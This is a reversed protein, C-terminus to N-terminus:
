EFLKEIDVKLAQSLGLMLTSNAIRKQLNVLDFPQSRVPVPLRPTRLIQRCIEAIRVASTGGNQMPLLERITKEPIDAHVEKGLAAATFIASSVQAVLVDCNAIIEHLNGDRFVMAQPFVRRIEAEAREQNENPHLKFIVKRNGAIQKVRRLFGARDDVGFTERISSTAALVYGKHPFNNECYEVAQDFNPIGTVRIKRPNIGKRIFLKKYGPSAVCFYEYMDSLGTAATNALGRPFGLWKVLWYALGEPETIGEQVLLIRYKRISPQIFLDTCMIVLDYPGKRAGEDLKLHHDQIYRMTASRHAGGMITHNLLGTWQIAKLWGETFFPTFYIDAEPLQRAIKHVITTQNLSGGVCLIKKRKQEPEM